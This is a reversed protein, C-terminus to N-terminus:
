RREDITVQRKTAHSPLILPPPTGEELILGDRKRVRLAANGALRESSIGDILYGKSNYYFIWEYRNEKTMQEMLVLELWKQGPNRKNFVAEIKRLRTEM